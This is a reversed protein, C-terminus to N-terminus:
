RELEMIWITKGPVKWEKASLDATTGTAINRAKTFGSTREAFREPSIIKEKDSTNMVVMVTQKDNYRFYTYVWDVPVFQM